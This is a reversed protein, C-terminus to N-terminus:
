RGVSITILVIYIVPVLAVMVTGVGALGAIAFALGLVALLVVALVFAWVEGPNSMDRNHPEGPLSHAKAHTPDPHSSMEM